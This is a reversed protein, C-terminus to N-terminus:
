LKPQYLASSSAKYTVGSMPTGTEQFHRRDTEWLLRMLLNESLRDGFNKHFFLIMHEIIIHNRSIFVINEM